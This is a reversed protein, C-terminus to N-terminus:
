VDKKIGILILIGIPLLLIWQPVLMGYILSIIIFPISLLIYLYATFVILEPYRKRKFGILLLLISTGFLVISVMHWVGLLQTKVDDTLSSNLLPNILDMQGGILHLFATFLNLIGAIIWYYNKM